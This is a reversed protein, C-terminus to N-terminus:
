LEVRAEVDLDVDVGAGAGPKSSGQSDPGGEQDGNFKPGPETKAEGKVNSTGRVSSTGNHEDTDSYDEEQNTEESEIDDSGSLGVNGSAELQAGVGLDIKLKESVSLFTRAENAQRLALVALRGAEAYAGAEHEARAQALTEKAAKIQAEMELRTETNLHTVKKLVKEASAIVNVAAGIRGEASARSGTEAVVGARTSTQANTRIDSSAAMDEAGTAQMGGSASEDSDSETSVQMLTAGGIGIGSSKQIAGQVNTRLAITNAGRSELAALVRDHAALGSELRARAEAAADVDNQAELKEVENDFRKLHLELAHAVKVQLEEQLEGRVALQEAEELRREALMASRAADAQASITFWDAVEENVSTKIPYLTDGPLSSQAAASVGGTLVLALVVAIAPMPRLYTILLSRVIGRNESTRFGTVREHREVEATSVPFLDIEDALMNRMSQKEKESLTLASHRFMEKITKTLKDM